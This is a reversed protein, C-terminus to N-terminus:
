EKAMVIGVIYKYIRTAADFGYTLDVHDYFPVYIDHTVNLQPILWEVDKTDALWDRGGRFIAVPTKVRSPHYLPPSKQGYKILNEKEGFDFHQFQGSRVNQAWHLITRSSTGAPDHSLYVDVRSTNLSKSDFGTMLFVLNECVPAGWEACLTGALLRLLPRPIGFEGHGFADFFSDMREAYPVLLRLPPSIMNKVRGIPALAMIHKVRSALEQDESFRAFAIASGQSHGVYYLQEHGTQNLIYYINAPLDYQAMDDWTFEWFELSKPSLITHRRSYINGRSNALWVDAGADALIFGLSENAPNVLFDDCSAMVGHQLLVVPRPGKGSRNHLGHPIRYLGLIYGDETIVTHREVPYGKSKILETVNMDVEPNKGLGFVRESRTEFLFNLSLASNAISFLFLQGTASLLTLTVLSVAM